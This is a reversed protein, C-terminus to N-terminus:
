GVTITILGSANIQVTFTGSTSSIDADSQQYCLLPQTAATAPTRDSFVATRATITSSAWSPDAADFTITNTGATYTLTKSALNVGGTTYGGGAAVENTLDSVHRHADQDPTYLSTHLTCVITDNLYDIAKAFADLFMQGYIKGTVAM